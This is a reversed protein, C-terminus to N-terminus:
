FDAGCNNCHFQKGIKSSGLGWLEASGWRDLWGIKETQFSHCYPCEPKTPDNITGIVRHRNLEPHRVKKVDEAKKLPYRCNLCQYWGEEGYGYIRGCNPCKYFM